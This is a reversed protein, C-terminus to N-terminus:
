NLKQGYPVLLNNQDFAIIYVITNTYKPVMRYSQDYEFM